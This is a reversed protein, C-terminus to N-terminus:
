YSYEFVNVIYGRVVTFDELSGSTERIPCCSLGAAVIPVYIYREFTKERLVRLVVPCCWEVVGGGTLVVECGGGHRWGDHCWRSGASVAVGGGCGKLDAVVAFGGGVAIPFTLFGVPRPM